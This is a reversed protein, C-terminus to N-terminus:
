ENAVRGITVNDTKRDQLAKEPHAATEYRLDKGNKKIYTDIVIHSPVDRVNEVVLNQYLNFTNNEKLASVPTYTERQATLRISKLVERIYKKNDRFTLLQPFDPMPIVERYDKGEYKYLLEKARALHALEDNFHREWIKKVNANTEDSYCSYYLYCENYEHNLMCELWTMNPDKLSEYGSVHQEEIMAIESFLKRGEDSHYFGAVNMYYNMTQQEAAVITGVNLKTIPDALTFNVPKRIDDVPNRHEAVTPRGPMIETYNGILKKYNQGEEMELLDTFRYLHDFDELLAFDLQNKVDVDKERQALIATLDVALQEYSLTTELITEDIPKLSGIRKQQQQEVRRVDAIERRLDNNSCHRAFQHYFWVSEYETGNMLIIRTKTYPDTEYKDYSKLALQALSYYNGKIKKPQLEFPNM